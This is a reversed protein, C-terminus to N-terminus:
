RAQGISPHCCMHHTLFFAWPFRQSHISGIGLGILNFILVHFAQPQMYSIPSSSWALLLHFIVIFEMNKSLTFSSPGTRYVDFCTIVFINYKSLSSLCSPPTARIRFSM